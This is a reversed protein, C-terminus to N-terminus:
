AVAVAVAAPIDSQVCLKRAPEAHSLPLNHFPQDHGCVRRHTAYPLGATGLPAELRSHDGITVVSLVDRPALRVISCVIM